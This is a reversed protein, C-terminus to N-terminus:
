SKNADTHLKISSLYALQSAILQNYTMSHCLAPTSIVRNPKTTTLVQSIAVIGM